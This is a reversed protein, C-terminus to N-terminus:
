IADLVADVVVGVAETVATKVRALPGSSETDDRDVAPEDDTEETDNSRDGSDGSNRSENPDAM